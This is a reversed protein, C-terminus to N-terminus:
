ANKPFPTLGVATQNFVILVKKLDEETPKLTHFPTHDIQNGSRPDSSKQRHVVAFRDQGLNEVPHVRLLKSTARLPV